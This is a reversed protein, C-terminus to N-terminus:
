NLKPTCDILIIDYNTYEIGNANKSTGLNKAQQQLVRGKDTLYTHLGNDQKVIQIIKEKNKM